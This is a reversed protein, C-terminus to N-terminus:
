FRSNASKYSAADSGGDTQMVRVGVRTPAHWDSGGRPGDMPHSHNYQHEREFVRLPIVPRQQIQLRPQAMKNLAM